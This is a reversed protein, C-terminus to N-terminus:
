SSSSQLWQNERLGFRKIKNALGVRSLGLEDAVRSQNWRYRRLTREIVRRELASVMDKLDAGEHMMQGSQDPAVQVMAFVDSLHRASVYGGQDAISVMRQVEAELERVNGPFDYAEMKALADRTVGMVRRGIVGAYKEIFFDTLVAIDELRDRM